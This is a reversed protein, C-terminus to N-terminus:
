RFWNRKPIWESDRGGNAVPPPAAQQRVVVPVQSTVRALEELQSWVADSFRDVGLMMRGAAAYNWTDMAENRGTKKWERKTYGRHTRSVLQEATLQRCYEETDSTHCFHFFGDPFDEGKQANPLDLSLRAYLDKKFESVNLLHLKLGTALKKGNRAIEVPSPAAVLATQTDPGGKVLAVPGYRHKRAWDYAREAEYGTDVCLKRITFDAKADNQYFEALVADLEAWVEPRRTDGDLVRYDVLWCQRRRGWGIVQVEIRDLQVDAGATLFLAGDPVTGLQYYVAARDFLRKWNPAEGQEAWPLGLTENKASQLSATSGIAGLWENAIEVAAAFPSLAQWGWFGATGHFPQTAEWYGTQVAKHRESDDIKQNCRRCEFWAADARRITRGDETRSSQGEQWV